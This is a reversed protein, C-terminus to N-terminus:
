PSSPGPISDRHLHPKGCRDLGATPDVWSGTCHTGRDKWPTFLPRPTVSVGWERRTGHEHFLLAIGRSGYPRYLAETGTCPYVKTKLACFFKVRWQLYNFEEPVISVVQLKFESWVNLYEACVAYLICFFFVCVCVTSLICVKYWKQYKTAIRCAM